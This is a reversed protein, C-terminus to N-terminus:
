RGNEDTRYTLRVVGSAYARCDVRRLSREVTQGEFLGIGNGIVVPMVFIMMEDILHENFLLTNIQGGGILWIDKGDEQRLERVAGTVDGSLFTVEDTDKRGTDRTLVYNRTDPYPFPVDFQLVKRYTNYGMLTTDISKHFEAYGYDDNEPNPITDLWAVDGDPKAIKGDLSAAIYLKIRRM